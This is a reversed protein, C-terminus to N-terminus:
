LQLDTFQALIVVLRPFLLTMIASFFAGILVGPWISEYNLSFTSIILGWIIMSALGGAIFAIVAVVFRAKVTGQM